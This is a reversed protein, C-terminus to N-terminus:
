EKIIKIEMDAKKVDEPIIFTYDFDNMIDLLSDHYLSDTLIIRKFKIEKFKNHEITVIFIIYGNLWEYAVIAKETNFYKMAKWPIDIVNETCHEKIFQEDVERFM